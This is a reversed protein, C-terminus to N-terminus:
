SSYGTEDSFQTFNQLLFGFCKGQVLAIRTQPDGCFLVLIQAVATSVDNHDDNDNNNNMFAHCTVNCLAQIVGQHMMETHIWGRTYPNRVLSLHQLSFIAAHMMAMNADKAMINADQPPLPLWPQALVKLIGKHVAMKATIETACVQEVLWFM